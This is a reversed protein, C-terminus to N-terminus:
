CFFSPGRPRGIHIVLPLKRVRTPAECRPCKTFRERTFPNLVFAYRAPLSGMRGPRACSIATKKSHNLKNTM